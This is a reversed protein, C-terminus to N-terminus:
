RQWVMMFQVLVQGLPRLGPLAMASSLFSMTWRRTHSRDARVGSVRKGPQRQGAQEHRGSESGHGAEGLGGGIQGAEVQGAEVKLAMAARAPAMRLVAQGAEFGRQFEAHGRELHVEGHGAVAHHHDM